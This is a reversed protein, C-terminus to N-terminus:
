RGIEKDIEEKSLILLIPRGHPCRDYNELKFLNNVIYTIQNNTLQEGAKVASRCAIYILAEEILKSKKVNKNQKVIEDIIDRVVSKQNKEKLYTPIANVIISKSGFQEIDIGLNSFTKKNNMIIDMETNSLEINVPTLLSQTKIQNENNYKDLLENYIIKEHANHQDVLYLGEESEIIIYTNYLQGFIKNIKFDFEVDLDIEDRKNNYNKIVTRQKQDYYNKNSKSEKFLSNKEYQKKSKQNNDIQKKNFTKSSGDDNKNKSKDKTDKNFNINKVTNISNLKRKVANEIVEMITQYRSFKVRRKTPHVNVDVLIPNLEIFIFAIPNKGKNLYGKYGRELAKALLNSEVSRGNAYFYQHIRSSRNYSPHGIYGQIKVFQEEHEVYLLNNTMEKGFVSYITDKVKGNSPTDLLKKGDHYFKFNINPFSIVEKNLINSIHRFETRTTKMYKYRAPTNYFIDIVTINTGVPAGITTNEKIEGGEIVLKKGKMEDQHRSIVEVKSISSISALAEGRFGLTALSFLDDAEEIKSTAYRSFALKVQDPKIGTGDDIVQIKEKGGEKIKITINESDADISNEVLEKVISAPREIVEGASIQNAVTESLQIIDNM